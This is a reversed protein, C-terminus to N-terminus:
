KQGTMDASPNILIQPKYVTWLSDRLAREADAQKRLLLHARIEDFVEELPRVTGGMRRQRVQLVLYRGDDRKQPYSVGGPVLSFAARATSPELDSSSVWGVAQGTLSEDTALLRPLSMGELLSKRALNSSERSPTLLYVLDVQDAATVYEAHHGSYEEITEASDVKLATSYNDYLERILLERRLNELRSLFLTDQNLRFKLAEQVLIEQAAWDRAAEELAPAGGSDGQAPLSYRSQL